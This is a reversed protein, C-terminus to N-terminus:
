QNVSVFDVDTIRHYKNQKYFFSKGINVLVTSVPGDRHVIVRNQRRTSYELIPASQLQFVSSAFSKIHCDIQTRLNKVPRASISKACARM